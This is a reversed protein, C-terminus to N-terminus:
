GLYVFWIYLVAWRSRSVAMCNVWLCCRLVWFHLVVYDFGVLLEFTFEFRILLSFDCVKCQAFLYSVGFIVFLGGLFGLKM